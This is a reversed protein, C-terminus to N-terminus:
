NPKILRRTENQEQYDLTGRWSNDRKELGSAYLETRFTITAILSGVICSDKFVGYDYDVRDKEEIRWFFFLFAIMQPNGATEKMNMETTKNSNASNFAVNISQNAWQWFIISKVTPNPMLMGAAVLMNTPVFCSMRFPLFIPKGTDPHLTSDCVLYYLIRHLGQEIVEITIPSFVEWPCLACIVLPCASIMNGPRSLFLLM